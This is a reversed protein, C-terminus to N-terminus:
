DKTSQLSNKYFLYLFPSVFLIGFIFLVIITSDNGFSELDQTINEGYFYYMIVAFSNNVFHGLIPIWISKSWYYLYGLLIGLLMRPLFGYFQMHLSSFLIAAIVIGWHINKTWEAFLRQLVGRFILEEGLAPLVGIMFITFVLSGLSEMKLFAQTLENANNEQEQIWRELGSLWEPLELAQNLLGLSNILPISALFTFITLIILRTKTSKFGLYSSSSKDFLFGIIFAPIIFLGISQIIQLYKLFKLIDTDNYNNGLSTIDSISVHFIPIAFLIGILMIILFCALIIFLSFILKSFPHADALANKM